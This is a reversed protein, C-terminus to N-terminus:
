KVKNEVVNLVDLQGDNRHVLAVAHVQDPNWNDPITYQYSKSLRQGISLSSVLSEGSVPTLIKRLVHHHTYNLEVGSLTNQPDTINDETLLVSLFLPYEIQVLGAMQVNITVQGNSALGTELDLAIQPEQDASSQISSAWDAQGLIRSNQGSFVTRNVTASPYAVPTGLLNQLAETEDTKFQHQSEPYQRAFFGAHISVIVLRDGYVEQLQQLFASGGPCNVCYVGTFEEVLVRQEGTQGSSDPGGIVPPIETCALSGLFLLLALYKFGATTFDLGM